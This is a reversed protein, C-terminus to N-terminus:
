LYSSIPVRHNALWTTVRIMSLWRNSVFNPRMTKMEVQLNQQRRVYSILAMLTTAFADDILLRYEQAVLDLQHVGCWIRVVHFSVAQQFQMQVELIRGIMTRDGDTGISVLRHRWNKDVPDLAKSATNFQNEATKNTHMPLAVVHVYVLRCSTCFRIRGDLYSAGQAHGVDLSFSDAWCNRLLEHISQLSGACFIRVYTACM